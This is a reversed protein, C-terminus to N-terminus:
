SEFLRFLRGASESLHHLELAEGAWMFNREFHPCMGHLYNVAKLGAIIARKTEDFATSRRGGHVIENRLDYLCERWERESDSDLFPNCRGGTTNAYELALNDLERLRRQLLHL